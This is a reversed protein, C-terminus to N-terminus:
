EKNNQPSNAFDEYLAEVEEATPAYLQIVNTYGMKTKIKLM